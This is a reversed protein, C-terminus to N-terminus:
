RLRSALKTLDTAKKNVYLATLGTLISGGLIIGGVVRGVNKARETARTRNPNKVLSIKGGSTRRLYSSSVPQRDTSRASFSARNSLQAKAGLSLAASKFRKNSAALLVSPVTVAGLILVSKGMHEFTKPTWPNRKKVITIRGKKSRRRYTGM